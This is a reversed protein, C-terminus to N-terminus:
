IGRNLVRGVTPLYYCKVNPKQSKLVTVLRSTKDRSFFSLSQKKKKDQPPNTFIFSLSVVSQKGQIGRVRDPVYHGQMM